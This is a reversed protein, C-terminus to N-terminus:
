VYCTGLKAAEKSTTKFVFFRILFISLLVLLCYVIIAYNTLYWPPLVTIPLVYEDGIYDSVGTRYRVKLKYKGYPLWSFNIKNNRQLEMWKSSFNELFYAFEYNESNLYDPVAFSIQIHHTNHPMVIGKDLIVNDIPYLKEDLKAEFFKLKKPIATEQVGNPNIWVLGHVGGFFLRGTYPCKWYSDDTFEIVNLYPNTYSHFFNNKPNFKILGKNSSLWLCHNSDELIGHIMDNVIGENKNYHDLYTIKDKNKSLKNMGSSAGMYLLSDSTKCISLIDGIPSHNDNNKRAFKINKTYVNMITLGYGGRSGGYLLSDGDYFISQFENCLNDNVRTYFTNVKTIVPNTKLNKLHIELLGKGTTALWLVSDSIEEIGHVFYIEEEGKPPYITHVRNDKYSYYSIGPGDSGIWFKSSDRSQEFCFVRNHPLGSSVTFHSVAHAPINGEHKDYESIRILGDGKTGIWLNKYRDTFLGRIPNMVRLPMQKQMIERFIDQKDYYQLIGHGDSGIWLIDQTRSKLTCFNGLGSGILKGTSIDCYYGDRFFVKVESMFTQINLIIGYKQIMGSLDRLFVKNESHLNYKYLQESEDVFFLHDEEVFAYLINQDHITKEIFSLAFDTIDFKTKIKKIKGSSMVMQFVNEEESFLCKVSSTTYDSYPMDRFGDSSNSYCSIFGDKSVALTNGKSDSTILECELYGPHSEVVCRQDLSFKNIGLSTCIWLYGPEADTIKHIINSCLSKPNDIDFRYVYSDKGNYLNLGDYTGIWLYDDRDQYMCLIANNSLDPLNYKSIVPYAKLSIPILLLFSIVCILLAHKM